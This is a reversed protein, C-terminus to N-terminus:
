NNYWFFDNLKNRIITDVDIWAVSKLALDKFTDGFMHYREYGQRGELTKSDVNVREIEIPYINIIGDAFEDTCNTLRVRINEDPSNMRMSMLFVKLHDRYLPKNDIGTLILRSKIM